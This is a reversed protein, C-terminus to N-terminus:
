KYFKKKLEDLFEFCPDNDCSEFAWEWIPAASCNKNIKEYLLSQILVALVNIQSLLRGEPTSKTRYERWLRLMEDRLSSGLRKTLKEMGKKEEKYDSLFIKEKRVKPIRPWRKM